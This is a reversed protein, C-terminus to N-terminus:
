SFLKGIWRMLRGVGHGLDHGIEAVWVGRMHALNEKDRRKKKEKAERTIADQEDLEQIVIAGRWWGGDFAKKACWLGLFGWLFANGIPGILIFFNIVPIFFTGLGVPKLPLLQNSCDIGREMFAFRAAIIGLMVAAVVVAWWAVITPQGDEGESSFRYVFWCGMATLFLWIM